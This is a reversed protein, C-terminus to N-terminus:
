IVIGNVSDPRRYMLNQAVGSVSFGCFHATCIKTRTGASNISFAGCEDFPNSTTPSSFLVVTLNWKMYQAVIMAAM